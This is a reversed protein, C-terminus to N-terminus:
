DKEEDVVQGEWVAEQSADHFHVPLTDQRGDGNPSFSRFPVALVASPSTNDVIVTGEPSTGSFDKQAFVNIHFRYEGDPAWAGDTMRGDWVLAEPIKLSNKYDRLSTKVPLSDELTYVTRGLSDTVVFAYGQIKLGKVSPVDLNIYLEDNVGDANKPSLWAVEWQTNVPVPGEFGAILIAALLGFYRIKM